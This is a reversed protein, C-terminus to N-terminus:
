SSVGPNAATHHPGAAARAALYTLLGLPGFLLTLLLVPSTWRARHGRAQADLYIWRGVFLDFALFHVWGITAGEPSGLLPAIQALTPRALLPFLEALRPIVLAAYLVAAPVLPWLSPMVRRTVKWRPAAVMLAWFPMVAIASQAFLTEM